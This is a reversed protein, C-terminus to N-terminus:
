TPKLFGERPTFIRGSRILAGIAEKSYGKKLLEEEKAWGYKKTRRFIAQYARKLDRATPEEQIVGEAYRHAEWYSTGKKMKEAEEIEHKITEEQDKKSLDDSVFIENKEPLPKFGLQKAAYYNMGAYGIMTEKPVVTPCYGVYGHKCKLKTERRQTRFRLGRQKSTGRRRTHWSM